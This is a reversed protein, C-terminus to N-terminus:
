TESFKAQIDRVNLLLKHCVVKNYDRSVGNHKNLGGYSCIYIDTCIHIYVYVYMCM